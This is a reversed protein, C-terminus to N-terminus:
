LMTPQTSRIGGFGHVDYFFRVKRWVRWMRRLVLSVWREQESTGYRRPSTHLQTESQEQTCIAAELIQPTNSVGM